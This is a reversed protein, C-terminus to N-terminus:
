PLVTGNLTPTWLILYLGTLVLLAVSALRLYPMTRHLRAVVGPPQVAPM